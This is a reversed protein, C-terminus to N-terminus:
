ANPEVSVYMLPKNVNVKINRRLSYMQHWDTPLYKSCALIFDIHALVNSGVLLQSYLFFNHEKNKIGKGTRLPYATNSGVIKADREM